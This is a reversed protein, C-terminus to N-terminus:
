LEETFLGAAKPQDDFLRRPPFIGFRAAWSATVTVSDRGSTLTLMPEATDSFLQQQHGEVHVSFRRHDRLWASFEQEPTGSGMGYPRSTAM